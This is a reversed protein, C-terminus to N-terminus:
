CNCCAWCCAWRVMPLRFEDTDTGSKRTTRPPRTKKCVKAQPFTDRAGRNRDASAEISRHQEIRAMIQGIVAHSGNEDSINGCYAGPFCVSARGFVGFWFRRHASISSMDSKGANPLDVCTVVGGLRLMRAVNPIHIDTMINFATQGLPLAGLACASDLHPSTCSPQYPARVSRQTRLTGPQREEMEKHNRSPRQPHGVMACIDQVRARGWEKGVVFAPNPGNEFGFPRESKLKCFSSKGARGPDILAGRESICPISCDWDGVSKCM